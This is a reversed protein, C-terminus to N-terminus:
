SFLQEQSYLIVMSFYSLGLNFKETGKIEHMRFEGTGCKTLILTKKGKVKKLKEFIKEIEKPVKMIVVVDFKEVAELIKEASSSAPLVALSQNELIGIRSNAMCSSISSIGPVIEVSCDPILKKVKRLVHFFTSYLMPDGITIFAADKGEGLEKAIREGAEVWAKELEKRARTMPFIPEIIKLKKKVAKRAIFSATSAKESSSKPAFIIDASSLVEVARLTLLKENGTGVGVGYFKGKKKFTM